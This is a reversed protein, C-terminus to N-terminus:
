KEPLLLYTTSVAWPQLAGTSTEDSRSPALEPLRPPARLLGREPPPPPPPMRPPARPPLRPPPPPPAPAPPPRPPAPAVLAAADFPPECRGDPSLKGCSSSAIM